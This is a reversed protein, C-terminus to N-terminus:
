VLEDTPMLNGNRDALFDGMGLRHSFWHRNAILRRFNDCFYIIPHQFSILSWSLHDELITHSEPINRFNYSSIYNLSFVDKLVDHYETAFLTNAYNVLLTSDKKPKVEHCNLLMSFLDLGDDPLLEGWRHVFFAKTDGEAALRTQGAIKGRHYVISESNAVCKYGRQRIKMILDLDCYGNYLLSEFGGADHFIQQPVFLCGATLLSFEHIGTHLKKPLPGDQFPKVVDVGHTLGMGWHVVRGTDMSLITASVAGCQEVSGFALNLKDMWGPTPMIDCDMFILNDGTAHEAGLNCAISYGGNQAPEVVRIQLNIEEFVGADLPSNPNDNVIIVETDADITAQLLYLNSKLINLGTYYTIIISNKVM